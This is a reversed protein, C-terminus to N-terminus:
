PRGPKPSYSQVSRAGAKQRKLGMNTKESKPTTEGGVGQRATKNLYDIASKGTVTDNRAVGLAWGAYNYGSDYMDSYFNVAADVGNKDIEQKYKKLQEVTYTQRSNAM